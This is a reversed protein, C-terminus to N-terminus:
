PTVRFGTFAATGAAGQGRPRPPSCRWCPAWGGGRRPPSSLPGVAALRRGRRLRVPLPRGGVGSGCGCEPRRVAGPGPHAADRERDAVAEAFRHVVRVAGTRAASLGLWAYADGLVALGARAGPLADDALALAVEATFTEAPLRQTLVHPLLRLDHAAASRVCSLRLGERRVRRDM